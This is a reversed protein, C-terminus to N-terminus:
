YMSRLHPPVPPTTFSAAMSGFLMKSDVRSESSMLACPANELVCAVNELVWAVYALACAIGEEM